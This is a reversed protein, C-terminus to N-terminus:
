LLYCVEQPHELHCYIAGWLYVDSFLTNGATVAPLFRDSEANEISDLM